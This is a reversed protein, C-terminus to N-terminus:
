GGPIHRQGSGAQPGLCAAGDQGGGWQRGPLGVRIGGLPSDAAQIVERSAGEPPNHVQMVAEFCHFLEQGTTSYRHGGSLGWQGLWPPTLGRSLLPGPRVWLSAAGRAWGSQVRM